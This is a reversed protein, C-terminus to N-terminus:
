VVADICGVPEVETDGTLMFLISTLLLHMCLTDATEVGSPLKLCICLVALSAILACSVWDPSHAGRHLVRQAILKAMRDKSVLQSAAQTDSLLSYLAM